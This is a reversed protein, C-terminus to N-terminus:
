RGADLRFPPPESITGPLWAGEGTALPGPPMMTLDEGPPQWYLDLVQAGGNWNYRLEFSHAGRGLEITTTSGPDERGATDIVTQGDILLLGQGDATLKFAYVGPFSINLTSQWRATMAYGGSIAEGTHRFAITGDVRRNRVVQDGQGATDAPLPQHIDAQFPLVEGALGRGPGNWLYRSAVATYPSGGSSWLLDIREGPAQLGSLLRVHHVGKALIVSGQVTSETSPIIEVGDIVLSVLSSGSVRFDYLAYAPAVLGAEWTAASPYTLGDPPASSSGIATEDQTLPEGTALTYTARTTRMPAIQESKVRYYSLLYPESEGPRFRWNYRHEEGSPYYAKILPIYRANDGWFMFVIDRDGNDLVPLIDAANFTDVGPMGYNLFRNAGDGWWTVGDALDIFYPQPRGEAVIRASTDRVFFAQGTYTRDDWYARHRVFYADYDLWGIYALLGVLVLAVPVQAYRFRPLNSRWAFIKKVNVRELMAVTEAALKNLPIAALIALTPIIGVLRPMYPATDTLVGGVFITSWFWLSITAMRTDRWRWLAWALGLVILASEIPKVIPGGAVTYVYSADSRYTLMSLTTTTQRWLVRPWFGDDALKISLPTQEFAAPLVPYIDEGTPLRLGLYLPKHTAGYTAAMKEPMSFIMVGSSRSNMDEIHDVYYVLFPSAFCVCAIVLAVIQGAYHFVGRAQSGIARGLARLRGVGSTARLTKYIAPLRVLPLLAFLYLLLAALMFPALRGGNYFYLSLINAYGALVFNLTRRTRLGRFLFYFGAVLLVPTTSNSFQEKSVILAIDSVSLLFTAIIAARVGFWMRVLGYFPPIMLAGVTASFFRLGFLDHGFLKLGAAIGWFYFNSQAFWGFLFPSVPHGTVISMADTGAYGEDPHVGTTWDGLRYFRLALGLVCLGLFIAMEVRRPLRWDTRDEVDTQADDAYLGPRPRHRVFALVLLLLSALWGYAGLSSSYDGRLVGASALNLALALFALVYRGISLLRSRRLGNTAAVVKSRVVPLSGTNSPKWPQLLGTKNNYTGWWAVIALVIGLAYWRISAVMITDRSQPTGVLLTQGYLACGLAALGMWLRRSRWFARAANRAVEAAGPRGTVTPVSAAAEPAHDGTHDVPTIEPVEPQAAIPTTETTEISKV